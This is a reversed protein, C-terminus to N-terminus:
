PIFTWVIVTPRALGHGGNDGFALQSPPLTHAVEIPVQGPRRYIEIGIVLEVPYSRLTEWDAPMRDIYVFAEQHIGYTALMDTIYQPHRNAIDGREIFMGSSGSNRHSRFGTRELRAMMRDTSSATIRVEPLMPIVQTMALEMEIMSTGMTLMVQMPEFGIRRVNVLYHGPPLVNIAFHGSDDTIGVRSKTSDVFFENSEKGANDRETHVSDIWIARVDATTVPRTTSISAIFGVFRAGQVPPPAASDPRQGGAPTALLISTFLVAFSRTRMPRMNPYMSTYLMRPVHALNGM